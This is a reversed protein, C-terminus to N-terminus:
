KMWQEILTKAEDTMETEGEQMFASRPQWADLQNFYHDYMTGNVVGILHGVDDGERAAFLIFADQDEREETLYHFLGFKKYIEIIQNSDVVYAKDHLYRVQYPEFYDYVNQLFSESPIGKAIYVALATAVCSQKGKLIDDPIVVLQRETIPVDMLM